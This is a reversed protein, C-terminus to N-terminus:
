KDEVSTQHRIIVETLIHIAEIWRSGATRDAIAIIGPAIEVTDVLQKGDNSMRKPSRKLYSRCEAETVCDFYALKVGFYQALAQMTSHGLDPVKGERLSDVENEGAGIANAIAKSSTDFGQSQGFEFLLEILRNLDVSNRSM